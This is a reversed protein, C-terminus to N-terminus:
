NRIIIPKTSVTDSLNGARDRTWFSFIATDAKVGGGPALCTNAGRHIQDLTVTIEGETKKTDIFSQPLLFLTSDTFNSSPCSAVTKKVAFFTSYDGQKDTLSLVIVLTQPGSIDTSNISKIKLQPKTTFKNKTCGAVILAVIVIFFYRM